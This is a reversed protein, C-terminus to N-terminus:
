PDALKGRRLRETKGGAGGSEQDGLASV